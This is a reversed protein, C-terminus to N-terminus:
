RRAVASLRRIEEEKAALKRELVRARMEHHRLKGIEQVMRTLRGEFERRTRAMRRRSGDRAAAIMKELRAVEAEL